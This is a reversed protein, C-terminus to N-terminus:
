FDGRLFKGIYGFGVQVEFVVSNFFNLVIKFFSSQITKCYSGILVMLGVKGGTGADAPPPPPWPSEPVPSGACPGSAPAQVPLPNHCRAHVGPQSLLDRQRGWVRKRDSDWVHRGAGPM